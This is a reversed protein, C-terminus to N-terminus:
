SRSPRAASAPPCDRRGAREARQLRALVPRELLVWSAAGALASAALGLGATAALRGWTPAGPFLAGALGLMLQHYLFFGYSVVGLQRLPLPAIWRTAREGALCAALVLAATALSLLAYAWVGDPRLFVEGELRFAVVITAAAAALAVPAVRAARPGLGARRVDVYACAALMGLVFQDLRSVILRRQTLEFLGGGVGPEVFAAHLAARTVWALAAIGLGLLIARRGLVPRALAPVLLYFHAETTLSWAAGILVLGGPSLYGQLLAAHAALAAGFSPARTVEPRLAVVVALAVFFAPLIRAARRLLFVRAGPPSRGADFAGLYGLSLSFGSLVFFLDVGWWAHHLVTLAWPAAPGLARAAEEWLPGFRDGLHQVFVALIAVGRLADLQPLIRGGAPAPRDLLDTTTPIALRTSWPDREPILGTRWM